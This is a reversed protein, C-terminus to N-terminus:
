DIFNFMKLKETVVREVADTGSQMIKYPAVEKPNATMYDRVADRFAVRIETNIHVIAVGAKICAQIEEKTNGSAGHLVLPIGIAERIERTREVNLEPDKGVGIMGHMNGVAPAFLDVGTAQVYELAQEKTTLNDFNVGDPIADLVKSSQGIYGLEAEVLVDRGVSHAYDVCQKALAINDELSLKAGDFIVSDYGADIAEKVREFSYTHDANLYIPYQHEERMTKVLAAAEKVGVFDREGESVGIIVPVQLKQAANFIGHLAELNSINFHGVAINKDDAEKITERLTNM